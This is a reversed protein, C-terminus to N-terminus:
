SMLVGLLGLLRLMRLLGRSLLENQESHKPQEHALGQEHGVVLPRKASCFTIEQLEATLGDMSKSAIADAVM